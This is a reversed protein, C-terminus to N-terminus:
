LICGSKVDGLLVMYVIWAIHLLYKLINEILCMNFTCLKKIFIIIIITSMNSSMEVDLPRKLKRLRVGFSFCNGFVFYLCTLM